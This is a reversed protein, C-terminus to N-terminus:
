WRGGLPLSRRRSSSRGNLVSSAVAIVATAAIIGLVSCLGWFLVYVSMTTEGNPRAGWSERKIAISGEQNRGHCQATEVSRLFPLLGPPTPAPSRGTHAKYPRPAPIIVGRLQIRCGTGRAGLHRLPLVARPKEKPAAEQLSFAPHGCLRPAHHSPPISPPHPFGM